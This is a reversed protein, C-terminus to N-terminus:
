PVTNKTKCPKKELKEVTSLAPFFSRISSVISFIRATVLKHQKLEFKFIGYTPFQNRYEEGYNLVAREPRV